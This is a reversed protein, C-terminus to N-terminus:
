VPEIFKRFYSRRRYVLVAIAALMAATYLYMWRKLRKKGMGAVRLILRFESFFFFMLIAIFVLSIKFRHTEEIVKSDILQNIVKRVLELKEYNVANEGDESNFRMISSLYAEAKDQLGRYHAVISETQNGMLAGLSATTFPEGESKLKGIITSNSTRYIVREWIDALYAAASANHKEEVIGIVKRVKAEEFLLKSTQRDVEENLATELETKFVNELHELHQQYKINATEIKDVFRRTMKAHEKLGKVIGKYTDELEKRSRGMQKKFKSADVGMAQDIKGEYEEAILRDEELPM